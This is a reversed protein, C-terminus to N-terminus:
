PYRDASPRSELADLCEDVQACRERVLALAGSAFAVLDLFEAGGEVLASGFSRMSAPEIDKLEPWRAGYCCRVARIEPKGWSRRVRAGSTNCRPWWTASRGISTASGNRRAARHAQAQRRRKASEDLRRFTDDLAALLSAEDM